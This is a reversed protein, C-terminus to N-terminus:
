RRSEFTYCLSDEPTKIPTTRLSEAGTGHKDAAPLPSAPATILIQDATCFNNQAWYECNNVTCRVTECRAKQM